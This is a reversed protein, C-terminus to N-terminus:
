AKENLVPIIYDPNAPLPHPREVRKPLDDPKLLDHAIERAKEHSTATHVYHFGVQKLSAIDAESVEMNDLLIFNIKKYKKKIQLLHRIESKGRRLAYIILNCNLHQMQKFCDTISIFTMVILQDQKIFKALQIREGRVPDIIFIVKYTENKMHSEKRLALDIM